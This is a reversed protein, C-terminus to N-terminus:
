VGRARGLDTVIDGDIARDDFYLQYRLGSSGGPQVAIRLKLDDRGEQALLNSVKSSAGETLLIGQSTEHQVTMPIYGGGRNLGSHQHHKARVCLSLGLPRM